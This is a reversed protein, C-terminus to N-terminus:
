GEFIPDIYINPFQLPFKPPLPRLIQKTKKSSLSECKSLLCELVQAM